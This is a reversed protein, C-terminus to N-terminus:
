SEIYICGYEKGHMGCANGVEDESIKDKYYYM